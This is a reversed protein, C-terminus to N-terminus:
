QRLKNANITLGATGGAVKRVQRAQPGSDRLLVAAGIPGQVRSAAPPLPLPGPSTSIRRSDSFAFSSHITFEPEPLTSETPQLRRCHVISEQYGSVAPASSM